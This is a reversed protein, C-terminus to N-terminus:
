FPFALASITGLAVGLALLRWAQSAPRDSAGIHCLWGALLFAVALATIVLWGFAAM